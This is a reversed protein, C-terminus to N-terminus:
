SPSGRWFESDRAEIRQLEYCQSPGYARFPEGLACSKRKEDVDSTPTVDEGAAARAGRASM